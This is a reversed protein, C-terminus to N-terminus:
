ASKPVFRAYLNRSVGLRDAMDAQDKSLTVQKKAPTKTKDLGKNKELDAVRTAEAAATKGPDSEGADSGAKYLLYSIYRGMPHKDLRLAEAMSPLKAIIDPRKSLIPDEAIARGEISTLNTAWNRQDIDEVTKDRITRAEQAAIHQIVNAMIEPDSGHEKIISVLQARTIKEDGTDDVSKTAPAAGKKTTHLEQALALERQEADQLKRQLDTLSTQLKTLEDPPREKDSGTPPVEGEVVVELDDEPPKAQKDDIKDDLPKTAPIVDDVVVEEILDAM